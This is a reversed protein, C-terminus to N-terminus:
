VRLILVNLLTAIMYKEAAANDRIKVATATTCWKIKNACNEYDFPDGKKFNLIALYRNIKQKIYSVFLM